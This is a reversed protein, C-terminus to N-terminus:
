AAVFALGFLMLTATKGSFTPKELSIREKAAHARPTTNDVGREVTIADSGVSVIRVKERGMRLVQDTGLKATSALPLTTASDSVDVTLVTAQSPKLGEDVAWQTLKPQVMAFGAAAALVLWGSVLQLKYPKLFLLLRVYIRM